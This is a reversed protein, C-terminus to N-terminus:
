VDGALDLLESLLPESLYIGAAEIQKLLPLVASILAESLVPLLVGLSRVSVPAGLTRTKGAARYDAETSGTLELLGSVV